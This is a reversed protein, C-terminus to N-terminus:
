KLLCHQRIRNELDTPRFNGMKYSDHYTNIPIFHKWLSQIMAIKKKNTQQQKKKQKEIIKFNRFCPSLSTM